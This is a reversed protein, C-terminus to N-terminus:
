HFIATFVGAMLTLLFFGCCCVLPLAVAGFARGMTTRHVEQLGIVTLVFGWVGSVLAGCLPIVQFVVPGTAYSVARFTGLFGSQAGGLIFLFIHFVASTLVLSIPILIPSLCVVLISTGLSFLAEEAEGGLIGISSAVLQWFVGLITSPIGVLLAYLIPSGVPGLPPPPTPGQPPLLAFFKSPQFLSLKLTQILADGFGLRDRQEWPIGSPEAVGGGSGAEGGVGTEGGTGSEGGGGFAPVGEIEDM